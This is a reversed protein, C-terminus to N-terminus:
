YIILEICNWHRYFFTRDNSCGTLCGFKPAFTASKFSFDQAGLFNALHMENVASIIM